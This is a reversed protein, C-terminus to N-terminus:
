VLCIIHCGLEFVEGEKDREVKGGLALPIDVGDGVQGVCELIFRRLELDIALRQDASELAALELVTPLLDPLSYIAIDVKDRVPRAKPWEADLFLGLVQDVAGTLGYGRGGWGVGVM